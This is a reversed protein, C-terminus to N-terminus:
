HFLSRIHPFMHSVSPYKKIKTGNTTLIFIEIHYQLENQAVARM